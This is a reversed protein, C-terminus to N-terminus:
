VAAARFLRLMESANKIAANIRYERGVDQRNHNRGVRRSQLDVCNEVANNIHPVVAVPQNRYNNEAGTNHHRYQLNNRHRNQNIGCVELRHHARVLHRNKYRIVSDM